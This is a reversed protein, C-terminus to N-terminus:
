NVTAYWEESHINESLLDTASVACLRSVPPNSVVRMVVCSSRIVNWDLKDHGCICRRAEEILKGQHCSPCRPGTEELSITLHRTHYHCSHDECVLWGQSTHTHAFLGCSFASFRFANISWFANGYGWEMAVFRIKCCWLVQKWSHVRWTIVCTM